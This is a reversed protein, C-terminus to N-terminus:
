FVRVCMNDGVDKGSHMNLLTICTLAINLQKSIAFPEQMYKLGHQQLQNATVPIALTLKPVQCVNQAMSVNITM